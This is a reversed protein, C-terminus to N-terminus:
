GADKRYELVYKKAEEKSVSKEDWELYVDGDLTDIIKCILEKQEKTDRQQMASFSMGLNIYRKLLEFATDDTLKWSKITGWKLTIYDPNEIIMETRRKGVFVVDGKREESKQLESLQRHHDNQRGDLMDM